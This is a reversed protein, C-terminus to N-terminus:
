DKARIELLRWGDAGKLNFEKKIRGWAGKNEM